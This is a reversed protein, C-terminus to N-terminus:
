GALTSGEPFADSRRSEFSRQPGLRRREAENRDREAAEHNGIAVHLRSRSAYAGPSRPNLRVARDLDAIAETLRGEAALLEGRKQYAEALRPDLRIARDLDVAAAAPAGEVLFETARRLAALAQEERMMMM